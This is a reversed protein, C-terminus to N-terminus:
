STGHAAQHALYGNATNRISPQVDPDEAVNTLLQILSRGDVQKIGSNLLRNVMRLNFEVPAREVSEILAENCGNCSELLHLISWFVGYGDEEPFREFVSFLSRLVEAGCQEPTALRILDELQDLQDEDQPDKFSILADSISKM